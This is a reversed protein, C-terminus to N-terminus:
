RSTYLSSSNSKIFELSCIKYTKKTDKTFIYIRPILYKQQNECYIFAKDGEILKAEVYLNYVNKALNIKYYYGSSPHLSLSNVNLIQNNTTVVAQKHTNYNGLQIM